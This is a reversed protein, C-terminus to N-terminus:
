LARRWPSSVRSARMGEIVEAEIVGRQRDGETTGNIDSGVQLVMMEELTHETIHGDTIRGMDVAGIIDRHIHLRRRRKGMGDDVTTIEIQIHIGRRAILAQEIGAVPQQHLDPPLDVPTDDVLMGETGTEGLGADIEMTTIIVEERTQQGM